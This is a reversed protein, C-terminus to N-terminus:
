EVNELREASEFRNSGLWKRGVTRLAEAAGEGYTTVTNVILFIALGSCAWYELEGNVGNKRKIIALVKSKSKV